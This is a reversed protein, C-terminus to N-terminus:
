AARPEHAFKYGSRSRKARYMAEDASDFLAQPEAHASSLAIGISVGVTAHRVGIQIPQSVAAVLRQATMAALIELAHPVLIAFEDGGLRAVVANPGAEQIMRNAIERLLTDGAQHGFTDNVLKFGDLDCVLLASQVAVRACTAELVKEFARRNLV